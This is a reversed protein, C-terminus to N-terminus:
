DDFVWEIYPYQKPLHMVGGCETCKHPILPPNTMLMPESSSINVKMEGKNCIECIYKIGVPKVDFKREQPKLILDM